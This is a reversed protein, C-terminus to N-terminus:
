GLADSIALATVRLAEKFQEARAPTFRVSPVAVNIAGAFAGKRRIATAIATIGPTFEDHSYAFGSKRVSQIEQRLRTKSRITQPTAAALVVRTLYDRLAEAPMEALVVKGGSVAYLPSRAGVKMTYSLAQTSIASAAVEVSDDVRVFFGCTENLEGSLRDLFPAVRDRLSPEPVARALGLLSPGLRYGESSGERSGERSSERAADRAIFGRAELNNLLHFLSSRPIRLDALLRSFSAPRAAAGIYELIDLGRDLSKVAASEKQKM